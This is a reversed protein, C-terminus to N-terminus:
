IDLRNNSNPASFLGESRYYTTEEGHIMFYQTKGRLSFAPDIQWTRQLVLGPFPLQDAVTCANFTNPHVVWFCISYDLAAIYREDFLIVGVFVPDM